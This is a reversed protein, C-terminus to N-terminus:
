IPRWIGDFAARAALVEPKPDGLDDMARRLMAFGLEGLERRLQRALAAADSHPNLYILSKVRSPTRRMDNM